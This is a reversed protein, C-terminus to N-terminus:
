RMCYLCFLLPLMETAKAQSNTKTFLTFFQLCSVIALNFEKIWISRFM